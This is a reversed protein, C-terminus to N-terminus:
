RVSLRGFMGQKFHGPVNCFLVYTGPKLVFAKHGSAGPELEAIEGLVRSGLGDEDVRGSKFPLTRPDGSVRAVIMEHEVSGVNHASITVKGAAAVNLAPTMKFDSLQISLAKPPVRAAVATATTEEDSGGGCGASSVAIALGSLLAIYTFSRCM